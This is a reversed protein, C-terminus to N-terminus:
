YIFCFTGTILVLQKNFLSCLKKSDVFNVYARVTCRITDTKVKILFSLNIKIKLKLFM